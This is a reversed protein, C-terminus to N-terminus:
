FGDYKIVVDESSEVAAGDILPYIDKDGLKTAIQQAMEAAKGGGIPYTVSVRASEGSGEIQASWSGEWPTTPKVGREVLEDTVDTGEAPPTNVGLYSRVATPMDFSLATLTMNAKADDTKGVSVWGFAVVLVGIIVLVVILELTTFGSQRPRGTLLAASRM